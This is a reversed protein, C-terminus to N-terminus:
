APRWVGDIARLWRDDMPHEVVKRHSSDAHIMWLQGNREILVGVHRASAARFRFTAVDLPRAHRGAGPGTAVPPGFTATIGTCLTGDPDRGYNKRDAPAYGRARAYIAALGVCDLGVAPNRGQHKFPVGLFGRMYATVDSPAM